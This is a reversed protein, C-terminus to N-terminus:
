HLNLVYGMSNLRTIYLENDLRLTFDMVVQAFYVILVLSNAVILRPLEFYSHGWTVKGPVAACPWCRSAAGARRRPASTWGQQSCRKPRPPPPPRRSMCTGAATAASRVAVAVAMRRPPAHM